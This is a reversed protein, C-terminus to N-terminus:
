INARRCEWDTLRDIGNEDAFFPESYEHDIYPQNYLGLVQTVIHTFTPNVRRVQAARAYRLTM